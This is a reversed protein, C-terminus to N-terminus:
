LKVGQHYGCEIIPKNNHFQCGCRISLQRELELKEGLLRLMEKHNVQRMESHMDRDERLRAFAEKLTTLESRLQQIETL